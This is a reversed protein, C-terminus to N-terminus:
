KLNLRNSIVKLDDKMRNIVEEDERPYKEDFPMSLAYDIVKKANTFDGDNMLIEAYAQYNFKFKPGLKIATKVEKYSMEKDGVSIPWGPAFNHVTAMIAWPFGFFYNSDMTVVAKMENYVDDAYFLSDLIGNAESWKGYGVGLWYHGDADNSNISVARIAYDKCLNFYAKKKDINNEYHDGYFYMMSAYLWNLEYSNTNKALENSIAAILVLSGERTNRQKAIDLDLFGQTNLSYAAPQILVISLFLLVFITKMM